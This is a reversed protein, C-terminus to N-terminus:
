LGLNQDILVVTIRGKPFCKAMGMWTNCIRDPSSCDSCIGTKQCPTRFDTHKLANKPAAIQRIRKRAENDDTVIKNKGATLIVNKPGFAIPAIRNGIMDLWHLHGDTTVANIGTLFLDALLGQRRIELREPRPISRDFGDILRFDCTDRLENIIGTAFLTESDGFSITMPELEAIKAQIWKGAEAADPMIEVAFGNRLLQKACTELILNQGM